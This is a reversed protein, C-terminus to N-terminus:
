ALTLSEADSATMHYKARFEWRAFYVELAFDRKLPEAM